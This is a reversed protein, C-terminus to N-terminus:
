MLVLLYTQLLTSNTLDIISVSASFLNATFVRQGAEDFAIAGPTDGGSPGLPVNTVTNANDLDIISVSDSCVNATFVRQGAEDFAIAVPTDGGSPGLPVNTVTTQIPLTLLQYLIVLNM